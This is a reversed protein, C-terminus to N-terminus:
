VTAEAKVTIKPEDVKFKASQMKFKKLCKTCLKLKIGDVTAQQLNPKFLRVTKQARKAWQRGAVGKKHRSQRGVQTGKGCYDCKYAM